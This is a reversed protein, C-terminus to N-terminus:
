QEVVSNVAERWRFDACADGERLHVLFEVNGAPGRIPSRLVGCVSWGIRTAVDLVSQLVERWVEPNRVVGKKGVSQRGAEFQPKVLVIADAGPSLLPLLHPLVLRLSIFSVDIVALDAVEPLASVKRINTREMVIVRPDTRLKWALQGYGVDIAYVRAAGAQLLVDTFGGTSAGVDVAVRDQVDLDFHDLAHQLKLGGRSAYPLPPHVLEVRAGDEVRSAPKTVIEGDVQIGGGAIVAQARARTEALGLEVVLTDLRARPRDTAM